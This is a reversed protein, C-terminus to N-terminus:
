LLTGSTASKSKSGRLCCAERAAQAAAASPPLAPFCPKHSYSAACAASIPLQCRAENEDDHNHRSADRQDADAGDSARGGNKRRRGGQRPSSKAAEGRSSSRLPPPSGRPAPPCERATFLQAQAMARPGGAYLQCSSPTASHPPPQARTHRRSAAAGTRRPDGCRTQRWDRFRHPCAREMWGLPGGM